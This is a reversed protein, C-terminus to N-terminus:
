EEEIQKEEEEEPEEKALVEKVIEEQPQEVPVEIEEKESLLESIPKEIDKEADLISKDASEATVHRQSGLIIDKAKEIAETMSVALHNDKLNQALKNIKKVTDADLGEM